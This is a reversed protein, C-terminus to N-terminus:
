EGTFPIGMYYKININNDIQYLDLQGENCVQKHELFNQVYTKQLKVSGTYKENKLIKGNRTEKRLHSIWKRWDLPYRQFVKERVLWIMFSGFSKRRRKMSWSDATKTMLTGMVSEKIIGPSQPRWHKEWGGNSIEAKPVAKKSRELASWQWFFSRAKTSFIFKRWGLIFTLREGTDQKRHRFFAPSHGIFSESLGNRM